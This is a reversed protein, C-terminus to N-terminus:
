RNYYGPLPPIEGAAEQRRLEDRYAQELDNWWERAALVIRRSKINLQHLNATEKLETETLHDTRTLLDLMAWTCATQTDTHRIPESM